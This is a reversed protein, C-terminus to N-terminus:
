FLFFRLVSISFHPYSHDNELALPAIYFKIIMVEKHGVRFISILMLLCTSIVSISFHPYSHDNELALPAIHLWINALRTLSCFAQRMQPVRRSCRIVCDTICTGMYLIYQFVYLGWIFYTSSYTSDGYLTHVPIRLTGM